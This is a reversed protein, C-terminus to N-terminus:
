LALPISQQTEINESPMICIVLTIYSIYVLKQRHLHTNQLAIQTAGRLRNKLYTNQTSMHM